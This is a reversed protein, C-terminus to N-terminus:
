LVLRPFPMAECGLRVTVLLDVVFVFPCIM